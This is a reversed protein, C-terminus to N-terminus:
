MEAVYTYVHTCVQEKTLNRWNDPLVDGGMNQNSLRVLRETFERGLMYGSPALARLQRHLSLLQDITFRDPYQPEVVPVPSPPPSREVM